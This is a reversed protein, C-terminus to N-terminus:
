WRCSLAMLRSSSFTRAAERDISGFPVGCFWGSIFYRGRQPTAGDGFELDLIRRVQKRRTSASM